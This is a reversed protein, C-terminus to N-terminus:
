AVDEPQYLFPGPDLHRGSVNAGHAFGPTDVMAAKLFSRPRGYKGILPKLEPHRV